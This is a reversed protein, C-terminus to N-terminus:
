FVWIDVTVGASAQLNIYTSPDSTNSIWVVSNANIKTIIFGIYARNLKHPVATSTTGLAVDKLLTGDLLPIKLLQNLPQVINKQVQDAKYDGLQLLPVQPFMKGGQFLGTRM